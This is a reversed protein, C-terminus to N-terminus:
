QAKVDFNASFRSTDARMFERLAMTAYCSVGLRMKLIVATREAAGDENVVVRELEEGTELKHDLIELDTRLIPAVADNYKVIQYSLDTPKMMILRYLGSLSFEKIRRAMKHPDLGDRAMVTEYVEMLKPNSPYTIDYGPTPLVIDFITYKGLAVDEETLARVKDTTTGAVDEAFEEGDVIETVIKSESSKEEVMILDGVQVELGFLEFRRSVVLNWIYSQYAHVYILRLNRPIQMIAKFYSNANYNGDENKKEKALQTLVNHEALCRRPMLKAAAAADKLTAWVRRAELSDPLVRDQEALILEAASAWDDKLLHIGLVHTSISFTGFRQLGFYNIFGNESLSKYSQLVIQELNEAPEGEPVRADRIVIQFENGQLDGLDLGRDEYSFAGLIAGNLGKTLTTVRAVKGKHISFRQCTVGRRDKTGAYKVAKNPVRLFKTITSAIEMTERNEKYVTFHLYNKFPGLGYNIVGSDDVHNVHNNRRTTSDAKALAIKFTNEPSTHTELKGQFAQRLLQHLQTRSTKEAFKSTTEMNGGNSFLDEITKLEEETVYQLLRERHAESLEYKPTTSPGEAQTTESEENKEQASGETAEPKEMTEEKQLQNGEVDGEKQNQRREARRDRKNAGTDVGKDTLHAVSGDLAVEFVQFDAYRQKVTGFFGKGAELANVYQTVGVDQELVVKGPKSVNPKKEAPPTAGAARKLSEM